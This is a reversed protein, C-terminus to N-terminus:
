MQPLFHDAKAGSLVFQALLVLAMEVLDRDEQEVMNVVMVVQMPRVSEVVKVLKVVVVVEVELLVAVALEVQAKVMYVQEVAEVAWGGLLTSTIDVLEVQPEELVLLVRRILKETLGEEMEQIAELVGAV